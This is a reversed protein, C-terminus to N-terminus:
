KAVVQWDIVAWYPKSMSPEGAVARGFFCRECVETVDYVTQVVAAKSVSHWHVRVRASHHERLYLKLSLGKDDM